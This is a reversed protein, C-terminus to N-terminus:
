SIVKFIPVNQEVNALKPLNQNAAKEHLYAALRHLAAAKQHLGADKRRSKAYKDHFQSALAHRKSALLHGQRVIEESGPEGTQRAETVALQSNFVGSKAARSANHARESANRADEGTVVRDELPEQPDYSLALGHFQNSAALPEMSHRM